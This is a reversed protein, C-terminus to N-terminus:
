ILIDLMREPGGYEPNTQSTAQTRCQRMSSCKHHIDCWRGLQAALQPVDPIFRQTANDSRASCCDDQLSPVGAEQCMERVWQRVGRCHVRPALNRDEGEVECPQTDAIPVRYIITVEVTSRIDNHSAVHRTEHSFTTARKKANFAVSFTIAEEQQCDYSCMYEFYLIALDQDVKRYKRTRGFANRKFELAHFTSAFRNESNRTASQVFSAMSNKYAHSKLEPLSFSTHPNSFLAGNEIKNLQEMLMRVLSMFECQVNPEMTCMLELM